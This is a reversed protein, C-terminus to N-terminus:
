KYQPMNKKQNKRRAQQKAAKYAKKEIPNM